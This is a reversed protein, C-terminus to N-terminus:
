VAKGDETGQNMTSYNVETVVLSSASSHDGAPYKKATHRDLWRVVFLWGVMAASVCLMGIYGNRWYPAHDAPFMVIGWFTWLLGDSAAMSALTVSRAADDATRALINSSWGYLLPNIGYASASLYLATLNGAVSTGPILLVISCIIQISCLLFGLSMRRNYRDMFFSVSLEAVIGVAHTPIPLTNVESQTFGDIDKRFKLYLLMLGQVVYSQLASGLVSFVCCVYLLPHGMVRKVLSWAQIDHGGEKKPPLRDLALQREKDSLYSADTYEPVDPFFFFGFIAVPLTIIGDILFVWQWGELGAHGEMSEHIAAMMAGAFMKGVQGAVTFMATRKAIENSKYWSGMIYISGAYTSAEALGMLFRVACLQAYTKCAASAMTLGAWVVVMSSMWIRPRIKHIIISSPIQGVLMGASAMSLLVNYQNGSLELAEKLGAVYANAFAQRDLKRILRKEEKSTDGWLYDGLSGQETSEAPEEFSILECNFLDFEKCKQACDDLYSSELVQSQGEKPDGRVNCNIDAPPESILTYAPCSTTTTPTPKCNSATVSAALAAVVAISKTSPM